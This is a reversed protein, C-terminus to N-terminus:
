CAGRHEPLLSTQMKKQHVLIINRGQKLVPGQRYGEQIEYFVEGNCHTKKEDHQVYHSSGKSQSAVRQQDIYDLDIFSYFSSCTAWQNRYVVHM